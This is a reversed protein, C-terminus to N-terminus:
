MVLATLEDYTLPTAFTGGVLFAGGQPTVHAVRVLFTRAFSKSTNTLTLSLLSGPEVRRGVLLGVGQNSVNQIRVAGFDESVQGVFQCRTYRNVPFREAARRDQPSM